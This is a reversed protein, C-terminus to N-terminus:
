RSAEMLPAGALDLHEWWAGRHPHEFYQRLGAAARAARAAAADQATPTTAVAMALSHVKLRETQPWLRALDDRLSLDAHLENVVLDRTKCVGYYEGIEILGRATAVADSRNRLRGWRLLLWAWEFQHGPEILDLGTTDLPKWDRDFYEGAAGNSGVFRELCLTALEDALAGWRADGSVELWALAAELLHMHPNARLPQQGSREEQFGGLPHAWGAQIDDRLRAARQTLETTKKGHA